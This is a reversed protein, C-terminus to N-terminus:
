WNERRDDPMPRGALLTATFIAQSGFRRRIDYVTHDVTSRRFCRDSDEFMDLQEPSGHRQLSIARITVARVPAGYNLNYHEEFLKRGFKAIDLPSQPSHGLRGQFMM